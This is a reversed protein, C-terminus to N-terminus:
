WAFAFSSLPLNEALGFSCDRSVFKDALLNEMWSREALNGEGIRFITSKLLRFGMSQSELLHEMQLSISVILTYAVEESRSFGHRREM